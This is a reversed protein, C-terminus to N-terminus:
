NANYIDHLVNGVIHRQKSAYLIKTLLDSPNEGTPVWETLSEVMAFSERIAHYFISNRKKQLTSEPIQTNHIVSINDGYILSPVSLPIGMM